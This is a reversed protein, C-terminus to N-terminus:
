VGCALRSSEARCISYVAVPSVRFYCLAAAPIHTYSHTTTTTTTSPPLPAPTLLPSLYVVGPCLCVSSKQRGKVLKEGWTLGHSHTRRRNANVRVSRPKFICHGPILSQKHFIIYIDTWRKLTYSVHTRWWLSSRQQHTLHLRDGPSHGESSSGPTMDSPVTWLVLCTCGRWWM